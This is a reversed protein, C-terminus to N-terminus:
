ITIVLPNSKRRKWSVIVHLIGSCAGARGQEIAWRILFQLSLHAIRVAQQEDDTWKYVKQMKTKKELVVPDIDVFSIINLYIYILKTSWFTEVNAVDSVQFVTGM